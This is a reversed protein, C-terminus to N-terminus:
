QGAASQRLALGVSALALSRPFERPVAVPVSSATQGRTWYAGVLDLCIALHRTIGWSSRIGLTVGPSYSSPSQNQPFNVGTASLWSFALGAHVDLAARGRALRWDSELSGLWRRWRAQGHDLDITRTAEGAAFARLGLGTGRRIWTGSITGGAALSNGLSLSPGLAVDYYALSSQTPPHTPPLIAFAGDETKSTAPIPETHSGAFEPHVDSEWTAIVVAAMAALEACSGEVDLLREAVVAAEPNVLEIHLGRDVRTIRAVDRRTPDPLSPLMSALAQEVELGSPCSQSEVQVPLASLILVGSIAPLMM